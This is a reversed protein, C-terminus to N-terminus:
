QKLIYYCTKQQKLQIVYDAAQDKSFPLDLRTLIGSRQM